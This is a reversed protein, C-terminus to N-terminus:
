NWRKLDDLKRVTEDIKEASEQMKEMDDIISERMEDLTMDPDRFSGNVYCDLCYDPNVSGDSETGFFEPDDQPMGCSQCIPQTEM